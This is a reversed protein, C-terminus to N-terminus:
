GVPLPGATQQQEESDAKQNAYEDSRDRSVVSIEPHARVWTAATQARRDPLLDVIRHSELDVLVKGFTRCRRFAFDDIGLHSVEEAPKTPLAMVRRVITM